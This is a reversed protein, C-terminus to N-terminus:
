TAVTLPECDSWAPLYSGDGNYLARFSYSGAVLPPRGDPPHAVGFGDLLLLAIPRM